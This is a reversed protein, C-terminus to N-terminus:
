FEIQVQAPEVINIRHLDLHHYYSDNVIVLADNSANFGMAGHSRQKTCM